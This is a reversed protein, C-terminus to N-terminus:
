KGFVAVTNQWPGKDAPETEQGVHLCKLKHVQLLHACAEEFNDLKFEPCLPCPLAEEGSSVRVIIESAFPMIDVNYVKLFWEQFSNV